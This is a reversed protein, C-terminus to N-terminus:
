DGSNSLKYNKKKKTILLLIFDYYITIIDGSYVQAFRFVFFPFALLPKLDPNNCSLASKKWSVSCLTNAPM